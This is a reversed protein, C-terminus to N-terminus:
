PLNKVVDDRSRCGLLNDVDHLGVLKASGPPVTRYTCRNFAKDTM